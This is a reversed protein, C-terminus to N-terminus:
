KWTVEETSTETEEVEAVEEETAPQNEDIENNVVDVDTNTNVTDDVKATDETNVEEVETVLEFVPKHFKRIKLNAQKLAVTMQSVPIGYHKALADKKMGKEVQQTLVNLNIKVTEKSM